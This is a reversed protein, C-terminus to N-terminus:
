WDCFYDYIWRMEADIIKTKDLWSWCFRLIWELLLLLVFFHQTKGKPQPAEPVPVFTWKGLHAPDSDSLNNSWKPEIPSELNELHNGPMHVCLHCLCLSLLQYLCCCFLRSSAFLPSWHVKRRQWFVCSSNPTTRFILGFLLLATFLFPFPFTLIQSLFSPPVSEELLSPPVFSCVLSLHIVEWPPICYGKVAEAHFFIFVQHEQWRTWTTFFGHRHQLAGQQTTNATTKKLLFWDCWFSWTRPNTPASSCMFEWQFNQASLKLQEM